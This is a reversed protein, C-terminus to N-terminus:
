HGGNFTCSIVPCHRKCLGSPNENWKGTSYSQEMRLLDVEFVSLLVAMEDRSYEEPIFSFSSTFLLGARIDQVKPFHQFAMLAMLKLQKPDAYRASGTKYDIIYAETGDVILLDAIGRVWYNEADFECPILDETLAMKRETYRDGGIQMLTDIVPKYQEYNKALPVGSNVYDEFAKHVETGYTMQETIKTPYNKAVRVEYFQRACTAYQKLSSFSWKLM